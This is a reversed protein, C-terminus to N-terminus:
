SAFSRSPATGADRCAIAGEVWDGLDDFSECGASRVWPTRGNLSHHHFEGWCRMYVSESTRASEEMGLIDHFFAVSADLKPTHLEVHALQSILRKRM